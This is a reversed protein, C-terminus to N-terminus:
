LVKYFRVSESVQVYERSSLPHKLGLRCQRIGVCSVCNKLACLLLMQVVAKYFCHSFSLSIIDNLSPQQGVDRQINGENGGGRKEEEEGGEKM